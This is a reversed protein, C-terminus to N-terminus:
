YILTIDNQTDRHFVTPLESNFDRMGFLYIVEPVAVSVDIHAREFLNCFALGQSLQKEHIYIYTLKTNWYAPYCLWQNENISVGALPSEKVQIFRKTKKSFQLTPQNFSGILPVKNLFSYDAPLNFQSSLLSVSSNLTTQINKITM